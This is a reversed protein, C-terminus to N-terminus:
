VAVVNQNNDGSDFTLETITPIINAHPHKRTRNRLLKRKKNEHVHPHKRTRNKIWWAPMIM